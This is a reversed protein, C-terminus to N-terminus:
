REMQADPLQKNIEPNYQPRLAIKEVIEDTSIEKMSFSSLPVAQTESQQGTVPVIQIDGFTADVHHSLLLLSGTQPDNLDEQITLDWTAPEPEGQEWVKFNYLPEGTPLTEVRVKYLYTTGFTITNSLSGYDVNAYENGALQFQEKDSKWRYWAFAGTPWFGERPQSDGSVTHGTWRLGLGVAPGNSPPNYGSPDIGHITIPVTVEYDHWGIDGIVVLRDYDLVVPRIGDTEM